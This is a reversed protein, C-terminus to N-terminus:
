DIYYCLVVTNTRVDIVETRQRTEKIQKKAIKNADFAQTHASIYQPTVSKDRQVYYSVVAFPFSNEPVTRSQGLTNM